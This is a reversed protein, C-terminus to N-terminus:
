IKLTRKIEENIVSRIVLLNPKDKGEIWDQIQISLVRLLITVDERDITIFDSM